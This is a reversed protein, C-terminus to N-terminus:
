KYKESLEDKMNYYLKRLAAYNDETIGEIALKVQAFLRERERETDYMVVPYLKFYVNDDKSDRVLQPSPKIRGLENGLLKQVPEVFEKYFKESFASLGIKKYEMLEDASGIDFSFYWIQQDSISFDDTPIEPFEDDEYNEKYNQSM